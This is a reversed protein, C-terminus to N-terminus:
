ADLLVKLRRLDKKLGSRVIPGLLPGLLRMNGQPRLEIEYTFVTGTGQPDARVSRGGGVGGITGAGMFRYSAGPDLETVVTDAVFDRSLSRVVEHVKTGAAPPGPPDPTMEVLGKRWRRDFAYDAIAEWVEAPSKAIQVSEEIRVTSSM